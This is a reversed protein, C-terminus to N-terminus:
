IKGEVHQEGEGVEVVNDVRDEVIEQVWAKTPAEEPCDGMVQSLLCRGRRLVAHLDLPLVLGLVSVRPLRAVGARTM